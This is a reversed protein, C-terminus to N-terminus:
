GQVETDYTGDGVPPSNLFANTFNKLGNLANVSAATVSHSIDAFNDFTASAAATPDAQISDDFSLAAGGITSLAGLQGLEALGPVFAGFVGLM